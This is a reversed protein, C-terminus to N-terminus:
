IPRKTWPGFLRVANEETIRAMDEVDVDKIGAVTELTYQVFAPENRKGRMPAPSLYPSDTEVLLHEPSLERVAEVLPGANKFTIVGPISVMFGFEVYRRATPLDATFCHIVGPRDDLGASALISLCEEHAERCHIVIPIGADKAMDLQRRFVRSQNDRSSFDYHFDLGAEGIAVVGPDSLLAEMAEFTKDDAKDAEHPHVGIAAQIADNGHALDVAERMIAPDAGSGITIM